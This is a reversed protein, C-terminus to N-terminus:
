FRQRHQVPRVPCQCELLDAPSQNAFGPARATKERRQDGLTEDLRLRMLLVTARPTQGQRAFASPCGRTDPLGFAREVFEHSRQELVVARLGRAGEQAGQDRLEGGALGDSPADGLALLPADTRIFIHRTMSKGLAREYPRYM